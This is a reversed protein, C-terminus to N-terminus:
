NSPGANTSIDYVKVYVQVDLDETSAPKIDAHEGQDYCVYIRGNHLTLSPRAPAKLDRPTFSTVEIDDLLNWNIDFAALRVNQPTTAVDLYSVYFRRGDFAVGEPAGSKQKLIKTGLYNWNRDYRLVIMDGSYSTGTVFNIVGDATQVLSSLNVNFTDSLVRKGVFQLDTTFFQHHTWCHIYPCDGPATPNTMIKSSIDIQGNVVAIMPDGPDYGDPLRFFAMPVSRQWTVANYKALMWGQAGDPGGSQYAFYFDNGAFLGGTDM